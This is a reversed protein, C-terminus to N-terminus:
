ATQKKVSNIIEEISLEKGCYLCIRKNTQTIYKYAPKCNHKKLKSPRLKLLENELFVVRKELYELRIKEAEM